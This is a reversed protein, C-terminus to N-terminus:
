YEVVIGFFIRRVTAYSVTRFRVTRGRWSILLSNITIGLFFLTFCSFYSVLVILLGSEIEPIFGIATLTYYHICTSSLLLSFSYPFFTLAFFFAVLFTWRWSLRDSAKSLLMLEMFLRDKDVVLSYLNIWIIWCDDLVMLYEKTRMLPSNALSGLWILSVTAQSIIWIMFHRAVMLQLAVMM